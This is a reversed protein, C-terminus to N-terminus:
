KSKRNNNSQFHEVLERMKIHILIKARWPMKNIFKPHFQNQIDFVIKDIRFCMFYYDGWDYTEHLIKEKKDVEGNLVRNFQKIITKMADENHTIYHRKGYLKGLLKLKNKAWKYEKLRGYKIKECKESAKHYNAFPELECLVHYFDSGGSSASAFYQGYKERYQKRLEEELPRGEKEKIEYLRDREKEAKHLEVYDIPPIDFDFETIIEDWCEIIGWFARTTPEMLSNYAKTIKMFKQKADIHKNLDPHYKKALSKYAKKVELMSASRHLGLVEYYNEDFM